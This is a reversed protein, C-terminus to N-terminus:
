LCLVMLENEASHSTWIHKEQSNPKNQSNCALSSGTSREEKIIWKKRSNGIDFLRLNTFVYDSENYFVDFSTHACQHHM